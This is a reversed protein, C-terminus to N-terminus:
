LWGWIRRQRAHRITVPAVGFLPGLKTSPESSVLIQQIQERTLVAGGVREGRARTGHKLADVKNEKSTGWRLHKPNICARAGCSHMAEIRESSIPKPGYVLECLKSHANVTKGEWQLSGYGM